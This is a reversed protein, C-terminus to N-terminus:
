SVVVEGAAMLRLGTLSPVFFYDGGRSTVFRPIGKCLFPLRATAEDGPIVMQRNNSSGVLPDMDDGQQFDDGSGIWAEQVFEFQDFGSNFALFMIGRPTREAANERVNEPLYPGYAIGRRILRHRSMLRGGFGLSDRPNARRIHAGLPCSAGALDASFKFTNNLDAPKPPREPYRVLPSGNKWRGVMKAALYEERDVEHPLHPLRKSAERVFTRFEEVHQELKRMVLYTGNHGLLRPLPMPAVEGGEGPYGLIFEGVPIKRFEDNDDPNGCDVAPGNDPVGEVDPNSIGDEFGFHEKRSLRGEVTLWQCDQHELAEIHPGGDARNIDEVFRSVEHCHRQREDANAAYVMVVVHVRRADWPPEWLQPDDGLARARARMGQQFEVPFSALCEYPLRLAELGAFSLAINFTAPPRRDGWDGPTIRESLRHLLRRGGRVSLISFFMFRAFKFAPYGRLVNHQIDSLDLIRSVNTM